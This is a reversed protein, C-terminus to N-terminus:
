HNWSSVRCTIRRSGSGQPSIRAMSHTNLFVTRPEIQAFEAHFGHYRDSDYWIRHYTDAYVESMMKGADAEYDVAYLERLIADVQAELAQYRTMRAKISM